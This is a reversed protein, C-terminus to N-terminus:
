TTSQKIITHANALCQAFRPPVANAVMKLLDKRFIKHTTLDIYDSPFTQLLMNEHWTFARLPAQNKGLFWNPKQIITYSITSKPEYKSIAPKFDENHARNPGYTTNTIFETGAPIDIHDEISNCSVKCHTEMVSLIDHSSMILRKRKQCVGYDQVKYISYMIGHISAYEKVRPNSVQEITWSYHVGEPIHKEIEKLLEYSWEMLVMGVNVDRVTNVISLQQCPPSAHVHVHDGERLPMNNIHNMIYDCSEPTGLSVDSHTANPHKTSHVMLAEKWSDMALSVTFGNQSFGYSIGGIGCFLDILYKNTM